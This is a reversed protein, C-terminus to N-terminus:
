HLRETLSSRFASDHSNRLVYDDATMPTGDAPVLEVIDYLLQAKELSQMGRRMRAREAAGDRKPGLPSDLYVGLVEHIIRDSLTRLHDPKRAYEVGEAFERAYGEIVRIEAVAMDYATAKDQVPNIPGRNIFVRDGVGNPRMIMLSDKTFAVM